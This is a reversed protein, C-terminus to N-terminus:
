RSAILAATLIGFNYRADLARAAAEAIVRQGEASPHYGDLSVLPGYPQASLMQQAVSYPPKIDARGYLVELETYAFGVDDATARIHASMEALQANVIAAESPTLVYDQVHAPAGACSMTHVGLGNRRMFAGTAVATPVRVPVFLLNDSGDCDASVAVNFAALFTARDAYLESGRRFAPFSAVDRILGVVIGYKATSAVTTVLQTYLPAFESMPVLAGPLAIGSRAGLVENAGFEISVIKPDQKLLASLQTEGPPLVRPYLLRYGGDTVNEPTTFLADRVRSANIALNQAPLEVGPVNPACSLTAGDQGAGEGSTRVGLALPAKLPSRCGFGDILPLTMERGAMRALQAPWSSSQSEATTGDSQNGMSISTGIAVYRQFAGHGESLSATSPTGSLSPSVPNSDACAALALTAAGVLLAHSTSRHYSM